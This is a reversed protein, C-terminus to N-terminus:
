AGSTSFTWLKVQKTTASNHANQHSGDKSVPSQRETSETETLRQALGFDVLAFRGWLLGRLCVLHTPHTCV